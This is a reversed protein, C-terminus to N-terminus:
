KRKFQASALELTDSYREEFFGDPWDNVFDGAESIPIEQIHSGDKDRSVFLIMVHDAPFEGRAVRLRARNIMHVSHTEVIVQRTLSTDCIVEAVDGQARPHLHIEPQEMLLPGFSESQCARLVPIVQSAGYGVDILSSSVGTENDKVLIGSHYPSLREASIRSAINLQKLAKELSPRSKRRRHSPPSSKAADIMTPSVNEFLNPENFYHFASRRDPREIPYWRRPGARGSSVREMAPIFGSYYGSRLTNQIRRWGAKKGHLESRQNRLIKTVGQTGPNHIRYKFKPNVLPVELTEGLMSVTIAPKTKRRKLSMTVSQDSVVDRVAVSWVEGFGATPGARVSVTTEVPMHEVLRQGGRRTDIKLPAVRVTFDMKQSVDHRHVADDFSGLDVLPGTWLMESEPLDSLDIPSQGLLCLASLLSSKGGSNPGVVFTLPKLPVDKENKFARFNRLSVGNITPFRHM